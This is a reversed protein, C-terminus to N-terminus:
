LINSYNIVLGGFIYWDYRMIGIYGKQPQRDFEDPFLQSFYHSGTTNSYFIYLTIYMQM